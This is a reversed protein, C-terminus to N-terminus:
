TRNQRQRVYLPLLNTQIHAFAAELGQEQYIRGITAEILTPEGLGSLFQNSTFHTFQEHRQPGMPIGQSLLWQRVYLALVADGLWALDRQQGFERGSERGM